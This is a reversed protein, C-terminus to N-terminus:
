EEGEDGDEGTIAALLAELHAKTGKELSEIADVEIGLEEAITKVISLKRISSAGGVKRKPAEKQYIKEGDADRLTALKSIVSRRPVDFQSAIEEAAETNSMGDAKFGLFLTQAEATNEANWSFKQAQTM